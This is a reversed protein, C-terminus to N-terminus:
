QDIKRPDKSFLEKPYKECSKKDGSFNSASKTAIGTDNSKKDDPISFSVLIYSKPSLTTNTVKKEGTDGFCAFGYEFVNM